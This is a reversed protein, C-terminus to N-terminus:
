RSRLWWREALAEAEARLGPPLDHLCAHVERRRQQAIAGQGDVEIRSLCQDWSAIRAAFAPDAPATREPPIFLTHRPSLARYLHGFSGLRFWFVSAAEDPETATIVLAM